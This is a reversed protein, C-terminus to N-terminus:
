WAVGGLVIAGRDRPSVFARLSYYLVAPLLCFSIAETYAFRARVDTALYPAAVFVVGTVLAAWTQRTLLLGCRYTYFGAATVCLFTVVRWADYADVGPLLALAGASAYPLQGYFQFLPYRRGHGMRPAVRPPFQGERWADRAEIIASVHQLRDAGQPPVTYYLGFLAFM